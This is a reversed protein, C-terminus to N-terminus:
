VLNKLEEFSNVYGRYTCSFTANDGVTGNISSDILEAEAITFRRIEEGCKNFIFTGSFNKECLPYTSLDSGLEDLDFELNISIEIPENFSYTQAFDGGISNNKTVPINFAYKFSQLRNSSFYNDGSFVLDGPRVVILEDTFEPIPSTETNTFGARGVVEFSYNVEPISGVSCSIEYSTMTGSLSQWENTHTNNSSQYKFTGTISQGAYDILSADGSDLYKTFSFSRPIEGELVQGVYGGGLISVPNRSFGAQGDFATVGLIRQGNIYVNEKDYSVRGFM